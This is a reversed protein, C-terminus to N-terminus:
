YVLRIGNVLVGAANYVQCDCETGGVNYTKFVRTINPYQDNAGEIAQLVVTYDDGADNQYTFKIVGGVDVEFWRCQLDATEITVDGVANTLDIIRHGTAGLISRIDDRQADHRNRIRAAKPGPGLGM